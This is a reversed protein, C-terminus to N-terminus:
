NKCMQITGIFLDEVVKFELLLEIMELNENDIAMLLATRGSFLHVHNSNIINLKNQTSSKPNTM